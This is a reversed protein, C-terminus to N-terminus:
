LASFRKLNSIQQLSQLDEPRDIDSLEPLVSYNLGLRKIQNVTEEFVSSEGWQINEFLSTHAQKLGLLVYGGDTAPGIVVDFKKLATCAKLLYGEDIFPCDTGVLIASETKSLTQKVAYYMREGLDAGQQKYCVLPRWQPLRELFKEQNGALWLNISCLRSATWQSLVYDVLECHLELSFPAPLYPQLRTKVKGLEPAKAFVVLTCDSFQFTSMM